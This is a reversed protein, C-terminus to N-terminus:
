TAAKRNAPLVQVNDSLGLALNRIEATLHEIRADTKDFRAEIAEQRKDCGREHATQRTEVTLAMERATRAEIAAAAANANLVAQGGKDRADETQAKELADIKQGLADIKKGAADSHADLKGRTYLMTAITCLGAFIAAGSGIWEAPTM